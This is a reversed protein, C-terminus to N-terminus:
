YKGLDIDAENDYDKMNYEALDDDNDIDQMEDEEEEEQRNARLTQQEMEHQYKTFEEPTAMQDYKQPTLAFCGRPVWAVSSVLSNKSPRTAGQM